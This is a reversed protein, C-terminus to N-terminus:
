KGGRRQCNDYLEGKCFQRYKKITNEPLLNYEDESVSPKWRIILM